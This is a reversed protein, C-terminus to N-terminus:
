NDDDIKFNGNEKKLHLTDKKIYSKYRDLTERSQKKGNILLSGEQYDIRYDEKTNLLGDKEMLSIMTKYGQLEEKAKVIENKAKSLETQMMEKSNGFTEKLAQLQKEMNLKEKQLQERSKDLQIKLKEYDIKKVEQMSKKAEEISEQLQQQLKKIDTKDKTAEIAEKINEQIKQWDIKKMVEAADLQLKSLDMQQITKTLKQQIAEVDIKSISEELKQQMKEFNKEQLHWDIKEMARNLEDIRQDLDKPEQHVNNNRNKGPITDQLQVLKHRGASASWGVQTFAMASIIAVTGIKKATIRSLSM